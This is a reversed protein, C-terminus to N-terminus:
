YALLLRRFNFHDSQELFSIKNVLGHVLIGLTCADDVSELHFNTFWDEFIDINNTHKSIPAYKQLDIWRSWIPVSQCNKCKQLAQIHNQLYSKM